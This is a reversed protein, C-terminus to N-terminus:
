AGRIQNFQYDVIVNWRYWTGDNELENIRPNRFWVGSVTETAMFMCQALEALLEGKAYSDRNKMPAFIQILIVGNTEFVVPSQGPTPNMQHARQGTTVMQTSARAWYEVAGPLTREEVGQYRVQPVGGMIAPAGATWGADLLAFIEKRAIQPSTSM